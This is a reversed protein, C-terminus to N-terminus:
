IFSEDDINFISHKWDLEKAEAEKKIRDGQSKDELTNLINVNEISHPFGYEYKETKIANFVFQSLQGATIDTDNNHEVCIDLQFYQKM